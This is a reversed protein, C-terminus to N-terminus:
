RKLVKQKDLSEVYQKKIKKKDVKGASTRPIEDLKVNDKPTEIGSFKQSYFDVLGAKLEADNLAYEDKLKYFLVPVNREVEDPIGIVVSCEFYDGFQDQIAKNIKKPSVKFGNRFILDKLRDNIFVFGDEDIHGIDGTHLWIKGDSHKKLTFQTAAENNIYGKMVVPSCICIEGDMGIELEDETTYDEKTDDYAFISITTLLHPIGVSGRKVFENHNCACAGFCESAGYGQEVGYPSKNNQLKENSEDELSLTMSDGGSVINKIFNWNRKKRDKCIYEFHIPGMMIHSPKFKSIYKCIQEKVLIPVMYNKIGNSLTLHEFAAGYSISPILIDLLTDGRKFDFDGNELQYNSSYINGNTIMVGKTTIGTTGGTQEILAVESAKGDFIKSKVSNGQQLFDDYDNKKGFNKLYYIAGFLGGSSRLPNIEITNERSINFEKLLSEHKQLLGQMLFIRKSNTNQLISKLDDQSVTPMVPNAIAGIKSCAYILYRAEPMNPLLIPVIEEEAVGQAVLANAAANVNMIFESYTEEKGLYEFAIDDPHKVSYDLLTKYMTTDQKEYKTSAIMAKDSRYKLWPKDISAYGVPPGQIEGTALGRLYLDRQKQDDSSLESLEKKLAILDEKKM